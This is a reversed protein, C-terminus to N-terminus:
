VQACKVPSERLHALMVCERKPIYKPAFAYSHRSEGLWPCDFGAQGWFLSGSVAILQEM